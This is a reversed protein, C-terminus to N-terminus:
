KLTVRNRTRRAHKVHHYLCLQSPLSRSEWRIVKVRHYILMKYSNGQHFFLYMFVCVSVCWIEVEDKLREFSRPFFANMSLWCFFFVIYVFSFFLSFAWLKESNMAFKNAVKVFHIDVAHEAVTWTKKWLRDHSEPQLFHFHDSSFFEHSEIGDIKFTHLM